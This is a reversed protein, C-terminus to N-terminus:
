TLLEQLELLQNYEVMEVVVLVAQALLLHQHAAVSDVAAV